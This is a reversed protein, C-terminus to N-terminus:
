LYLDNGNAVNEVNVGEQYKVPLLRRIKKLNLFVKERNVGVVYKRKMLVPIVFIEV